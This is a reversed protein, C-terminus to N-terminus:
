PGVPDIKSGDPFRHENSALRDAARGVEKHAEIVAAAISHWGAKTVVDLEEWPPRPPVDGWFKRNAEYAPRGFKLKEPM